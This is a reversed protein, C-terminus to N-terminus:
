SKVGSEGWVRLSMNKKPKITTLNCENPNKWTQSKTNDRRFHQNHSTTLSTDLRRHHCNTRPDIKDNERNREETVMAQNSRSIVM